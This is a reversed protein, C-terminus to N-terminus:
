HTAVQAEGPRGTPHCTVCAEYDYIDAQEHLDAMQVPAHDHCGYCTHEEYSERHCTQCPVQGEDGHDLRFTHRTLLAPQWAALTHCRVCDLGFRDAHLVPEEHCAACQHPDAPKEQGEAAPLITAFRSRAAILANGEQAAATVPLAPTAVGNALAVQNVQEWDAHRILTVLQDVHYDTLIGGEAIHWASMVSGHPARAVTAYLYASDAGALAPNNLPPMSASGAGAPGHCTACKEVYVVTAERIQKQRLADQAAALRAPEQLTYLPFLVILILLALGGLLTYRNM